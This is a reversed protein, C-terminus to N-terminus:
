LIKSLDMYYVARLYKFGNVPVKSLDITNLDIVCKRDSNYSSFGGYKWKFGIQRHRHWGCWAKYVFTQGWLADLVSVLKSYFVNAADDILPMLLDELTMKKAM